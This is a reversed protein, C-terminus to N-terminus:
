TILSTWDLYASQHFITNALCVVWLSRRGEDSEVEEELFIGPATFFVRLEMGEGKKAEREGSHVKVNSGGVNKGLRM